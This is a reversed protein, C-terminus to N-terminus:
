EKTQDSQGDHARETEGDSTPARETERDSTPTVLLNFGDGSLRWGSAEETLAFAGAGAASSRGEPTSFAIAQQPADIASGWVDGDLDGFSIIRLQAPGTKTMSDATCSPRTSTPQRRTWTM